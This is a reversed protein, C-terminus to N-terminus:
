RASTTLAESIREQEAILTDLLISRQGAYGHTVDALRHNVLMKLFLDDVHISKAVAQYINRFKGIPVPMSPVRYDRSQKIGPFVWEDDYRAEELYQIAPQSLIYEFPRKSKTHEIRATQRALDINEWRLRSVEGPRGGTLLVVAALSKTIPNAIAAHAEWLEPLVNGVQYREEKNFGVLATPPTEPLGDFGKRAHRYVARLTQMARNAMFPGREESEKIHRKEMEYRGIESALKKLSVDLLDPLVLEMAKRYSRLTETALNPGRRKLFFEWADRLTIERPKDVVATLGSKIKAIELRAENRADEAEFLQVDGIKKRRTKKRGLSDKYDANCYYTASMSGIYMYFGRLQTDRLIRHKGPPEFPESRAQDTKIYKRKAGM